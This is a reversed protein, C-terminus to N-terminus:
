QWASKAHPPLPVHSSQPPMFWGHQTPAVQEVPKM